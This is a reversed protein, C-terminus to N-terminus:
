IQPVSKSQYAKLSILKAKKLYMKLGIEMSIQSKLIQSKSGKDSSHKQTEVHMKKEHNESKQWKIWNKGVLQQHRTHLQLRLYQWWSHTIEYLTTWKNKTQIETKLLIQFRIEWIFVTYIWTFGLHSNIKKNLEERISSDHMSGGDVSSCLWIAATTKKGFFDIFVASM